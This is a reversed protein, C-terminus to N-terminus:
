NGKMAEVDQKRIRSLRTAVTYLRVLPVASKKGLAAVDADTFLRNGQDDVVTRAILKARINDFSQKREGDSDEPGLLSVEWADREAATMARVRVTGGWEPVDVDEIALDEHALIAARSLYKSPAGNGDGADPKATTTIPANPPVPKNM